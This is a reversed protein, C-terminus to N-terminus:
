LGRWVRGTPCYQGEERECNKFTFLVTEARGVVRHLPVYGPGNHARSDASNDRNDGMLFIHGDPVTVPGFDDHTLFDSREYIPHERGGPLTETYHSVMVVSPIGNHQRYRRQEHFERDMMEGNIMLRGGRVEIVDGGVGTVRKILNIGEIENRVVVVDGHQPSSWALRANWNPPMIEGLGMPLSHRSFGYAWKSVVIRDDVELSPQMSESPIFYTAFAFSSWVFWIAIVSIMFRILEAVYDINAEGWNRAAKVAKEIPM